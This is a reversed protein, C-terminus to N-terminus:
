KSHSLVHMFEGHLLCLTCVTSCRSVTSVKNPFLACHMCCRHGNSCQSLPLTTVPSGCNFCCNLDLGSTKAPTATPQSSSSAIRQKKSPVTVSELVTDCSRKQGTGCSTKLGRDYTSSQPTTGVSGSLGAGTAYGVEADRSKHVKSACALCVGTTESCTCEQKIVNLDPLALSAQLTTNTEGVCYRSSTSTGNTEVKDRKAVCERCVGPTVDCICEEKIRSVNPWVTDGGLSQRASLSVTADTGKLSENLKGICPPCLGKTEGCTCGAESIESKKSLIVSTATSSKVAYDVSSRSQCAGDATDLHNVLGKDSLDVVESNDPQALFALNHGSNEDCLGEQKDAVSSLSPLSETNEITICDDQKATAKHSNLGAVCFDCLWPNQDCTCEPIVIADSHSEGRVPYSLDIISAMEDGSTDNSMISPSVLIVDTCTECSKTAVDNVKCISELIGIAGFQSEDVARQTDIIESKVADDGGTDTNVIVLSIDKCMKSSKTAMDDVKCTSESIAIDGGPSQPAIIESKAAHNGDTGSNQILTSVLSIDTCTKDISSKYSKMASDDVKCLLASIDETKLVNSETSGVPQKTTTTESTGSVDETDLACLDPLSEDHDACSLKSRLVNTSTPNIAGHMKSPFRRRKSRRIPPPPVKGDKSINVQEMPLDEADTVCRVSHACLSLKKGICIRAGPVFTQAEMTRPLMKDIDETM